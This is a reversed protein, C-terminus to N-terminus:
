ISQMEIVDSAERSDLRDQHHHNVSSQSVNILDPNNIVTGGNLCQSVNLQFHQLKNRM